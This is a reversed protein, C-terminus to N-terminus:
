LGAKERIAAARSRLWDSPWTPAYAGIAIAAAELTRARDEALWRDFDQRHMPLRSAFGTKHNAYAERVEGTTPTYSM